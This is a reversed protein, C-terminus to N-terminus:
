AEVIDDKLGLVFAVVDEVEQQPVQLETMAAGAHGLFINWDEETIGMGVHSLKMDRGAYYVPGGSQNCLYDILLQQEQELRDSGRHDWFRRLTPDEKVRPLLNHVFGVIGEYGGLRTFLSAPNM